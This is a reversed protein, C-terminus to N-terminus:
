GPLPFPDVPDEIRVYVFDRGAQVAEVILKSVRVIVFPADIRVHAFEAQRVQRDNVYVAGQMADLIPKSLNDVDLTPEDGQHFNVIVAKLDGTLLAGGPHATAWAAAAADRVPTQWAKLAPRNTAQNSVPIDVIVYEVHVSM